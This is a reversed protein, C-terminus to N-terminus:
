IGARSVRCTPSLSPPLGLATQRCVQTRQRHQKGLCARPVTDLFIGLFRATAPFTWPRAAFGCLAPVPPFTWRHNVEERGQGGWMEAQLRPTPLVWGVAWHSLATGLGTWGTRKGGSSCFGCWLPSTLPSPFPCPLPPSPPPDRPPRGSVTGGGGAQSPPLSPPPPPPQPRLLSGSSPHQLGPECVRPRRGEKQKRCKEAGEKEM